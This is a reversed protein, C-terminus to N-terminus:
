LKSRELEELIRDISYYILKDHMDPTVSKNVENQVYDVLNKQQIRRMVFELEVYYDLRRKVENYVVMQRRRFEEEIQLAVNQRKADMLMIQGEIQYQNFLEEVIQDELYNTTETRNQNWEHEYKDIELDLRHALPPGFVKVCATGLVVWALGHYFYHDLVYVEKSVLFTGFAFLLTYFGTVGTKPIFFSPWEEPIFGAVVKGPDQRFPRNIISTNISNRSNEEKIHVASNETPYNFDFNEWNTDNRQKLLEKGVYNSLEIQGISQSLKISEKFIRCRVHAEREKEQRAQELLREESIKSFDEYSQTRVPPPTQEQKVETLLPFLKSKDYAYSRCYVVNNFLFNKIRFM